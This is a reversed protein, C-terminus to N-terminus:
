YRVVHGFCCRSSVIVCCELQGSGHEVQIWRRFWWLVPPLNIWIEIIEVGVWDLNATCEPYQIDGVPPALLVFCEIYVSRELTAHSMNEIIGCPTVTSAPIQRARSIILQLCDFVVPSARHSLTRTLCTSRALLPINPPSSGTNFVSFVAFSKSIFLSASALCNVLIALTWSMKSIHCPPWFRTAICSSDWVWLFCLVAMPHMESVSSIMLADLNSKWCSPTAAKVNDSLDGKGGAKDAFPRGPPRVWIIVTRRILLIWWWGTSVSSTLVSSLMESMSLLGFQFIWKTLGISLSSLQAASMLDIISRSLPILSWSLGSCCSALARRSTGPNMRGVPFHILCASFTNNITMAISNLFFLLILLCYSLICWYTEGAEQHLQVSLKM